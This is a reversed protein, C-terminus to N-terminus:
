PKEGFLAAAIAAWEEELPKSARRYWHDAGSAITL